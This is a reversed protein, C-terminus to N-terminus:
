WSSDCMNNSKKNKLNSEKALFQLYISIVLSVLLWELCWVGCVRISFFLYEFMSLIFSCSMWLVDSRTVFLPGAVEDCRLPLLFFMEMQPFVVTLILHGYTLAINYLAQPGRPPICGIGIKHNEGRHLSHCTLKLPGFRRTCAFFSFFPRM